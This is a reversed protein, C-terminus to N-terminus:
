SQTSSCGVVPICALHAIREGLTDEVTGCGSVERASACVIETDM